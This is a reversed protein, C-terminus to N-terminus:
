ADDNQRTFFIPPRDDGDAESAAQADARPQGARSQARRDPHEKRYEKVARSLAARTNLVRIAGAANPVGLLARAWIVAMELISLVLAFSVSLSFTAFSRNSVESLAEVRAMLGARSPVYNPDASMLREISAPRGTEAAIRRANAAAVAADAAALRPSISARANAAARTDGEIQQARHTQLAILRARAAQLGSRLFAARTRIQAIRDAAYRYREGRGVIGSDTPRERVGRLEAALARQQAYFDSALTSYEAEVDAIQRRVREMEADIAATSPPVDAAGLHDRLENRDRVARAYAARTDAIQGDVIREAVSRVAQNQILNGHELYADIDPAFLAIRVLIAAAWMTAFSLLIRGCTLIARRRRTAVAFESMGYNRLMAEGEVSLLASLIQRDFYGILCTIVAGIPVTLFIPVAALLLAANWIFFNVVMSLSLIFGDVRLNTTEAAPVLKVEAADGGGMFLVYAQARKWLRQRLSQPARAQRRSGAEAEIPATPQYNM